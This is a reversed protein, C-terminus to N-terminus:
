HNETFDIKYFESNRIVTLNSIKYDYKNFLKIFKNLSSVKVGNYSFLVDGKKLGYSMSQPSLHSIIIEGTISNEDIEVGYNNLLKQLVKRIIHYEKKERLTINFKQIERDRTIEISVNSGVQKGGISKILQAITNIKAGDIKHIIDGNRLGISEAPSNKIISIIELKTSFNNNQPTKEKVLFGLWGRRVRGHRILESCVFKIINSPIAFSIGQYSGSDTRIATNIGVMKGSLNILPGGSNGPNIPVDTQIFDEIDTFGINSRGKYSVIGSTISLRLGFPNGIALVWEGEALNNSDELQLPKLSYNKLDKIKLIAIDTKKDQLSFEGNKFKELVYNNGDSSSIRYYNGKTLVHRNTVIYGSKSIITGSGFAVRHLNTKRQLSYKNYIVINVVSPKAIKSANIFYKNLSDPSSALFGYQFLCIIITIILIRKKM